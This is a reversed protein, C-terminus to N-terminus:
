RTDGASGIAPRCGDPGVIILRQCTACRFGPSPADERKSSHVQRGKTGGATLHATVNPWRRAPTLHNSKASGRREDAFSTGRQLAPKMLPTWHEARECSDKFPSRHDRRIVTTRRGRGGEHWPCVQCWGQVARAAAGVAAGRLLVENRRWWTTRNTNDRTLKTGIHAEGTCACSLSEPVIVTFPTVPLTLTWIPLYGARRRCARVVTGMSPHGDWLAPTQPLVFSVPM